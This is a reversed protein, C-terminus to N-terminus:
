SFDRDPFIRPAVLTWAYLGIALWQSLGLIAMNWRGVTPNAANHNEDLGDVTGWGTLIMAVYCSILAMVINLKWVHKLDSSESGGGGATSSVLGSTGAEQGDILPVDLNLDGDNSSSAPSPGVAKAAQVADVNLRAEASWSWGTWVLSITTLLLGITIGWVDNRGLQPNCEHRPNKSVISYCLYVSYLSIVSSTLLSGETGALQLATMGIIALLSLTIVWTNGPCDSFHTYLL